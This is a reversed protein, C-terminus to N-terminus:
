WRAQVLATLKRMDVKGSSLLPMERQQLRFIRRPVKYSSLKGALGQKLAPEDIDDDTVIVATVVQGRDPDPLGLVVSHLGGTLDSLVAEVERPAVNAGASKIMDGLRGKLYYFGDADFMGVDGSRWWGDPQFVQSRHKGYYGEMMFASRIWLEGIEGVGSEKGTEVDVIKVEFGPLIKGFSGRMHEPLDSEDPCTALLGGVETMGYQGHRLSPDRPRVDSPMIPYLNGRRMSAFNRKGFSPDAALYNVSQWYGSTENPQERELLDLVKAPVTSNSVVVRAGAIFSALMVYAFGAVWFWPAPSFMVKEPDYQRVENINNSHRILTGHTHIVGKPASTSGSTHIIVLRDAPMVRAEVMELYKEDITDASAELSEISWGRDHGARPPGSFWIRRLWPATLSRFPPPRSYDLEPFAAQLVQDYRHSRFEPAALMFGTDSNTLLGRLEDATSLTSLPLVVAGIRAIALTGVIFDTGTPYLLAVHAGKTVGAALLGRALRRSRADAEAYSLRVDDSALFIHDGYKQAQQRSLAPLTLPLGDGADIVASIM